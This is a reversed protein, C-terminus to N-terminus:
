GRKVISPALCRCFAGSGFELVELTFNGNAYGSVSEPTEYTKKHPDSGELGPYLHGGAFSPRTVYGGINEDVARRM